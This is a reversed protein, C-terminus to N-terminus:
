VRQGQRHVCPIPIANLINEENVSGCIQAATANLPKQFIKKDMRLIISTKEPMTTLTGSAAAILRKALM